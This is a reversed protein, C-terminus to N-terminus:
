SKRNLVNMVKQPPERLLLLVAEAAKEISSDILRRENEPPESLVFNSVQSKYRPRGIGVAICLLSPSKLHSFVSELGNHGATTRQNKLKCSGPELDLNDYVLVLNQPTAKTKKLVSRVIEGSKNM